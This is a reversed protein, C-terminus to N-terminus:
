ELVVRVVETGGDAGSWRLMYLGGPLDHVDLEMLPDGGMTARRALRGDQSILEVLAPGAGPALVRLYTSAPVPFAQLVPVDADLAMRAMQEPPLPAWSVKM